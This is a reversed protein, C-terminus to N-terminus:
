RGTHPFSANSMGLNSNSGFRGNSRLQFDRHSAVRRDMALNRITVVVGAGNVIFGGTMASTGTCDITITKSITAGGFFGSDLCAIQGVSVTADHAARFDACPAAFVLAGIRRSIFM